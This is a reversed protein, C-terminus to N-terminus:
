GDITLYVLSWASDAAAYRTIGITVQLKSTAATATEPSAAGSGVGTVARTGAILTGSTLVACDGRTQVWCGQTSIPASVAVGIPAAALTTAPAIVLNKYTNLYLDVKSSTTLATRVANGPALYVIDGAATTMLIHGAIKFLQGAGPTVSVTAFGEAFVNQATSAGTTLSLFKDNVVAAAPTLNQQSAPSVASTYVSGVVLQTAGSSAFRYKRGDQLIMQQGLSRNGWLHAVDMGLGPVGPAPSVVPTIDYAMSDPGALLVNELTM